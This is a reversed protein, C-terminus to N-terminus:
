VPQLSMVTRQLVLLNTKENRTCLLKRFCNGKAENRWMRITEKIYLDLKSVISIGFSVLLYALVDVIFIMFIIEIALYGRLKVVALTLLIIGWFAVSLVISNLEMLIEQIGRFCVVFKAYIRFIEKARRTDATLQIQYISNIFLFITGVTSSYAYVGLGGVRSCEFGAVVIFRFIFCLTRTSKSQTEISGFIDQFVHFYPDFRFYLSSFLVFFPCVAAFCVFGIMSYMGCVVLKNCPVQHIEPVNPSCLNQQFNSQQNYGKLCYQHRLLLITCFPVMSCALVCIMHLVVTSGNYGPKAQIFLHTIINYISGSSALLNLLMSFGFWFWRKKESSCHFEKLESNWEVPSKPMYSFGLRHILFGVDRLRKLHPLDM